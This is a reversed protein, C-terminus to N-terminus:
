GSQGWRRGETLQENAEENNPIRCRDKERVRARSPHGPAHLLHKKGIRAERAHHLPPREKARFGPAIHAGIIKYGSIPITGSAPPLSRKRRVPSIDSSQVRRVPLLEVAGGMVHFIPLKPRIKSAPRAALERRRAFASGNLKLKESVECHRRRRIGGPLNLVICLIELEYLPGNESIKRSLLKGTVRLIASAHFRNKKAGIEGAASPRKRITKPPTTRSERTPFNM